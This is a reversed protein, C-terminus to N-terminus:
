KYETVNLQCSKQAKILSTTLTIKKCTHTKKTSQGLVARVSRRNLRLVQFTKVSM